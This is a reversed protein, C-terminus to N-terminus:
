TRSGLLYDGEASGNHGHGGLLDVTVAGGSRSYDVTDAGAGGDVRDGGDGTM